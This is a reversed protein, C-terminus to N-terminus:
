KLEFYKIIQSKSLQKVVGVSDPNEFIKNMWYAIRIGGTVLQKRTIAIAQKKYTDTLHVAQDTGMFQSSGDISCFTRAREQEITRADDPYVLSRLSQAERVWDVIQGQEIRAKEMANPFSNKILESAYQPGNNGHDLAIFDSDWASHLNVVKSENVMVYCQNGGRDLTNGVHLPQHLDGVIHLFYRLAVTKVSRPVTRDLLLNYVKELGALADNPKKDERQKQEVSMGTKIDFYHITKFSDYDHDDRVTDPWNSAVSLSQGELVTAINQAAAPSVYQKAIEGITEHGVPGWALASQGFGLVLSGAVLIWKLNTM